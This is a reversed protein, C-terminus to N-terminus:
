VPTVSFIYDLEKLYLLQNSTPVSIKGEKRGQETFVEQPRTVTITAVTVMHFVRSLPQRLLLPKNNSSNSVAAISRAWSDVAPQPRYGAAATAASRAAATATWSSTSNAKSIKNAQSRFKSRIPGPSATLVKDKSLRVRSARVRFRAQSTLPLNARLPKPLATTPRQFRTHVQSAM